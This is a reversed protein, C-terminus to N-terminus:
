PQEFALTPADASLTGAFQGSGLLATVNVKELRPYSAFLGSSVQSLAAIASCDFSLTLLFEAHEHEHGHGHGHGHGDASAAFGKTDLESALLRCGAQEPLKLWTAAKLAGEVQTLLAREQDTKPAREFGVLSDGPSQFEVQLKSADSALRLEAIGHVHAQQASPLAALALLFSLHNM